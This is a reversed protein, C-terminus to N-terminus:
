TQTMSAVIDKVSKLGELLIAVKKAAEANQKRVIQLETTMIKSLKKAQSVIAMTNNDINDRQVVLGAKKVAPQKKAFVKPALLYAADKESRLAAGLDTNDVGTATLVRFALIEEHTPLLAALDAKTVKKDEDPIDHIIKRMQKWHYIKAALLYEFTPFDYLVDVTNENGYEATSFRGFELHFFTDILAVIKKVHEAGPDSPDDANVNPYISRLLERAQNSTPM